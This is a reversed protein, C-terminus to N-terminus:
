AHSAWRESMATSMATVWERQEADWRSQLNPCGLEHCVTLNIRVLECHPCSMFANVAVKMAVKM